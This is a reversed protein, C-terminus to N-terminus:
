DRESLIKRFQKYTDLIKSSIEMGQGLIAALLLKENVSLPYEKIEDETINLQRMLQQRTM